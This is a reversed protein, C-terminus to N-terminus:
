QVTWVGEPAFDLVQGCQYFPTVRVDVFVAGLEQAEKEAFRAQYDEVGVFVRYHARCYCFVSEVVPPTYPPLGTIMCYRIPQESGYQFWGSGASGTERTWENGCINCLYDVEDATGIQGSFNKGGVKVLNQHPKTFGGAAILKKCNDCKPPQKKPLNDKQEESM